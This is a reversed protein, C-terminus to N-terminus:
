RAPALKGSVVLSKRRRAFFKRIEEVLIISTALSVIILWDSLDLPVTRLFRQFLPNYVALLQFLFAALTASVMFKNEFPNMRFVSQNDSRCNWANLWQLVALITLSITWAKALDSEFYNQFLLLTVVMMTMAMIFMRQGMLTDVLYKGPKDFNAGLLGKEKPEMALAITFFGDTVFNLWIIQAPLLPLPFSAFIAGTIVLLEGITTSLLYLVVKKITRYINRGEEVASVISGFNDDLLIIDSAEKAVETGVRGMAVGLDAAVLSPADNVGDGTMAVIQGKSKYANIIRLKHEPTVRAFVSTEALRSGLDTESLSDIEGGTLTKDGMKYIGAERAITEATTQHDGTIMVVRIGAAMAQETAKKVELRMADKLGFFGVFTLHKVDEQKLNEPVSQSFALAIVRLGNKSIESFVSVLGNKEEQSLHEETGGHWIKSAIGLIVEPAGIVATFYKKGDKHLTAQYKLNYNFPIESLLPSERELDDKNFGVKEGLVLAAAETPDGAVRWAKEEESFMVRAGASFAAIKGALLLEPHNPPEIVRGNLRIDGKPEYGVGGIEFTKKDVYVIQVVMENRTVTGTKDVAIIQAQGLAEVAQLRKVLANRKSMRWVGAALIITVAIPLGEPIVSVLIAVGIALMERASQGSLLGIVFLLANMGLAVYIVVRSLDRINTKLPIETEITAVEKAIKGIVTEVGTRVVVAQGNGAVVHTGKFVMNKEELIALDPKLTLSIKHVAGSEGTLASEDIKLNSGLIVRSDAAIRDGEQLVAIDGVVVETDPILVEKGDRLIVAKTEVFKKLALLTNRARGEQISGIIANLILVTMIISGDIKEGMVFVVLSAALLIYILPSQFQRLFIVLLSDVKGEPLKNPGCERLRHSADESSLGHEGSRLIEFIEPASKTHWKTETTSSM